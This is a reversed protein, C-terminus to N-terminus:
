INFIQELYAAFIGIGAAVIICIISPVAPNFIPLAKKEPEKEM